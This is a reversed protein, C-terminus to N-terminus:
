VDKDLTVKAFTMIVKGTVNNVEYDSNLTKSDAAYVVAHLLYEHVAM